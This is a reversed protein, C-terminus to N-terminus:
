MSRLLTDLLERATTLVRALAQYAQQQEMLRAAETDLDVGTLEDKNDVAVQYAAENAELNQQNEQIEAGTSSVIKGFIDSYGGIGNEKNLLSTKIMNNLNNADDVNADSVLVKFTDGGTVVGNFDISLGQFSTSNDDAISRSGVVHGTPFDYIDVSSPDNENVVLSYERAAQETTTAVTGIAIPNRAENSIFILDEGRLGSISLVESALSNVAVSSKVREDGTNSMRLGGDSHLLQAQVTSIGYNSSVANSKIRINKDIAANNDITVKIRIQSADGPKAETAFQMWTPLAPDGLNADVTNGATHFCLRQTVSGHMVAGIDTNDANAQAFYKSYIETKSTNSIHFDTAAQGTNSTSFILGHGSVVGNNASATLRIGAADKEFNVILRDSEPGTISFKSAAVLESLAEAGSFTKTGVVVNTGQVKTDDDLNLTATYKQEGISFEVKSGNSPFGSALGFTDGYFVTSIAQDRLEAALKGSIASTSFDESVKPLFSSVLDGSVPDSLTISYKSASAVPNFNEADAYGGDLQYDAYFSIDTYDKGLDFNKNSFGMEFSSNISNQTNGNYSVSFDSTSKIQVHGGVVLHQGGALTKSTTLLRDGDDNLQNVSIAIGSTLNVDTLSIDGADTHQLVVGSSGALYATIGTAESFSNIQDVLGAQSGNVITTSVPKGELNHGFLQFEVLGDAIGSLEVMNSASASMGLADLDKSLQEAIQGAMMGSQFDVSVSRGNSTAVTVPSTLQTRVEPFTNSAYVSVNNNVGDDLDAGSLTVIDLGETTKRDVTAGAFGQGGVAPLFNAIYKAEASFGNETSILSIVEDQSLIKGSIQVGERTFISLDSAGSDQAALFGPVAGLSGSQLESFDANSPQSASGIVFSTGTAVSKLGLDKFSKSTINSLIAGSNLVEALDNPTKLTPAVTSIDFVFTGAGLTVTLSNTTKLTALDTSFRLNSQSKLISFDKISDVGEIVGLAGSSNFRIPNAANRTESFLGQLNAADSVTTENFYGIKLESSGSNKIDAEITHLGAAALKSADSILVKMNSANSSTVELSFKDGDKPEGQVMITLGSVELKSNFDKISAGNSSAIKWVDLKENFVMELKSGALNESYGETRLSSSGTNTADQTISIAELSFLDTGRDGNLDLGMNHISNMERVFKQALTDVESVTVGILSDASVLGSLQGSTFHISSRGGNSGNSGNLYAKVGHLDSELSIQNFSNGKLLTGVKGFRGLSVEVGGNSQYEVSIDSLESLKSLLNDRKDLLLNTSGSKTANGLIENQVNSLTKLTSNFEDAALELTDQALTRLNNLGSHLNSIERSVAKAGSLALTRLNTDSPDQALNNLGDFFESIRTGVTASKPILVDELRDLVESKSKSFSFSSSASQLQLDLFQDFARTIGGMRVGLGSTNSITLVDANAGSVEEISADRRAYGDTGVNAINQGTAALANKYAGIGAKGIDFLDGM